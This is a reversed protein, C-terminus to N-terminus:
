VVGGPGRLVGYCHIKGEKSNSMCPLLSSPLKTGPEIQTLRHLLFELDECLREILPSASAYVLPIPLHYPAPLIPLRRSAPSSTVDLEANEATHIRVGPPAQMLIM